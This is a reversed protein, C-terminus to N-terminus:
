QDQADPVETEERVEQMGELPCTILCGSLSPLQPAAMGSGGEAAVDKQYRVPIDQYSLQLHGRGSQTM